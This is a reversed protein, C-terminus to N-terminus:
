EKEIKTLPELAELAQTLESPTNLTYGRLTSILINISALADNIASSLLQLEYADLSAYWKAASKPHYAVLALATVM